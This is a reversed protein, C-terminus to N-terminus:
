AIEDREQDTLLRLTLGDEVPPTIRKRVPPARGDSRVCRGTSRLSARAEFAALENDLATITMKGVIDDESTQYGTNIIKRKRKFALVAAATSPGYIQASRVSPSAICAVCQFATASRFDSRRTSIRM